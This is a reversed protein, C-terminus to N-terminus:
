DAILPPLLVETRRTFQLCCSPQLAALRAASAHFFFLHKQLMRQSPALSSRENREGGEKGGGERPSELELAAAAVVGM